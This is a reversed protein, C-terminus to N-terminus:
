SLNLIQMREALWVLGGVLLAGLTTAVADWIDPEGISSVEDIVYEKILGVGIGLLIAPHGIFPYALGTVLMGAVFHQQKDKQRMDLM